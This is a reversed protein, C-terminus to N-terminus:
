RKAGKKDKVVILDLAQEVKEDEWSVKQSCRSPDDIRPRNADM